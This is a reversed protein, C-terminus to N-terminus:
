RLVVLLQPVDLPKVLSALVSSPLSHEFGDSAPWGTMLVFPRDPHRAALAAGTMGPLRLDSLVVDIVEHELVAEAAEGSEVAVVVYGQATLTARLSVRFVADDEVILVRKVTAADNSM